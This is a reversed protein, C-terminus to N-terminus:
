GAYPREGNSYVAQLEKIDAQMDGTTKRMEHIRIARRPWDFEVPVIPVEAGHAIYWFGTRWGAVQKRTGEPALALVFADRGRFTDVVQPVTNQSVSRDVPIGGLWRFIVSSPWRFLTHKGLWSVDLGLAFRAAIGVVFDWNSTHPAAIIVLKSQNPLEGVIRWGLARLAARGCLRTLPGGRRPLAPPVHPVVSTSAHVPRSYPAKGHGRM